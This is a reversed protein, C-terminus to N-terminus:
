DIFTKNLKRMDKCSKEIIELTKKKYNNDFLSSANIQILGGSQKIEYISEIKKLYEYRELHAVIPTYGLCSLNYVYDAIDTFATYNFELLVHKGGNYTLVKENKLLDYINHDCFVEEGLYCKVSPFKSYVKNSFNDFVLKLESVSPEYEDKRYHPTFIFKNVGMNVFKEVLNLSIEESTSGDDVFPLIHSHVDVM